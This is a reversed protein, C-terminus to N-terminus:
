HKPVCTRNAELDISYAGTRRAHLRVGIRRHIARAPLAM